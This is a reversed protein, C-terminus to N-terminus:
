PATTAVLAVKQSNAFNANRNRRQQLWDAFNEYPMPKAILYGQIEQIGAAVLLDQEKQTEVGEALVQLNLGKAMTTITDLMRVKDADNDIGTIFSRDIKLRSIPFAKLSSISSHGTGFDDLEIRCGMEALKEVTQRVTDNQKTAIVNELIEISLDCANLDFRDLHWSLREPLMPDSLDEPAFNVGIQPLDLGSARLEVLRGLATELIAETLENLRGADRFSSLFQLPPILGHEPHQWRALVEAGTVQGSKLCIQPQFWPVIQGAKLATSVDQTLQKRTSVLKALNSSYIRISGAGNRQAETLAAEAGDLSGSAPKASRACVGISCSQRVVSQEMDYPALVAAQLRRSITLAVETNQQPVNRAVIAYSTPSLQGIHDSNRTAQSLRKIMEAKITELEHPHLRGSTEAWNDFGLVFCLHENRSGDNNLLRELTERDLIERTGSPNRRDHPTANKQGWFCMLPLALAAVFLGLEDFFLFSALTGAPVFALAPPATFHKWFARRAGNWHESVTSIM